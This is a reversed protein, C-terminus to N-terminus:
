NTQWSCVPLFDFIRLTRRTGREKIKWLCIGFRSFQRVTLNRYKDAVAIGRSDMYAIMDKHALYKSQQKAPTQPSNIVSGENYLYCYRAGPVVVLRRCEAFVRVTYRVDEFPVREVFTLNLRELLERSIIKYFAHFNPPCKCVEFRRAVDDVVECREIHLIQRCYPGRYKSISCVAVDADNQEAARYLLEFYDPTVVDDVDIFGIFRGSSERVGHNRAGGIHMNPQDIVKIRGDREAWGNLLELSNDTSGDNVCVIELDDFTQTTICQLCRDIYKAGNYVPIIVSITAM